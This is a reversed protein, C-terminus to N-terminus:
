NIIAMGHKLKVHALEHAIIAALMDESAASEVLGKTVLIHGGPSAFANLEPSDLILVACGNFLGITPNNVVIAQCILNLYRTLDPNGTYPKYVALINAAVARGLYYLDQLTPESVAETLAREMGALADNARTQANGLTDAASPQPTQNASSGGYFATQIFLCGFVCLFVLSKKM